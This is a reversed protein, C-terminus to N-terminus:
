VRRKPFSTVNRRKTSAEETQRAITENIHRILAGPTWVRTNLFASPVPFDGREIARDISYVHRGMTKAMWEPTILTHPNMEAFVEIIDPLKRGYGCDQDM